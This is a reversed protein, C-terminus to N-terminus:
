QLSMTQTGSSAHPQSPRELTGIYRVGFFPAEAEDADSAGDGLGDVLEAPSTAWRRQSCDVLFAAVLHQEQSMFQKLAYAPVYGDVLHQWGGLYDFLQSHRQRVATNEVCEAIMHMEDGIGALCLKCLREERPISLRVSTGEVVQSEWKRTEVELDHAALRFCTLSRHKCRSMGASRRVYDPPEQWRGRDLLSLPDLLPGEHKAFWHQYKCCSVKDSVAHATQCTM